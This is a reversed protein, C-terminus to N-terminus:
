FELNSNRIQLFTFPLLYFIIFFKKMIKKVSHMEIAHTNFPRQMFMIAFIYAKQPSFPPELLSNKSQRWRTRVRKFVRIRWIPVQRNLLLVFVANNEKFVDNRYLVTYMPNCYFVNSNNSNNSYEFLYILCTFSIAVSFISLMCCLVSVRFHPMMSITSAPKWIRLFLSLLACQTHLREICAGKTKYWPGAM